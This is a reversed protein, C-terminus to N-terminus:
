QSNSGNQLTTKFEDIYDKWIKNNDKTLTKNSDLAMTVNDKPVTSNIIDASDTIRGDAVSVSDNLQNRNPVAVSAMGANKISDIDKATLTDAKWDEGSKITRTSDLKLKGRYLAEKLSQANAAAAVACLLVIFVFVKKM